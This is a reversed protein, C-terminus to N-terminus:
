GQFYISTIDIWMVAWGKLELRSLDDLSNFFFHFEPTSLSLVFDEIINSKDLTQYWSKPNQTETVTTPNLPISHINDVETAFTLYIM